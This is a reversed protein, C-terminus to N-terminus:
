FLKKKWTDPTKENLIELEYDYSFDRVGRKKIYNIIDDLSEDINKIKKYGLVKKSKEASCNAYKVENTRNPFYLPDKNFKLKNAIIRYLENVSIYNDDPGINILESKIKPDTALKDICYICDEIDSFSRKQEGDGYIIPQKNQLMLNIM